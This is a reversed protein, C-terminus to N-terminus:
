NANKMKRLKQQLLMKGRRYQTKSTSETIGLIQAIEKHQYGELLFLSLVARSGDPLSKIARHISRMSINDVEETEMPTENLNDDFPMTSTRQAKRLYNLATNITIRKIWAGLTSDKRFSDLNNFVKIFSDQIVDRADESNGVMRVVTHYMANVYKQYLIQQSASHGAL